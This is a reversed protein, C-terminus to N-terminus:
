RSCSIRSIPRPLHTLGGSPLSGQAVSVMSNATEWSSACCLATRSISTRARTTADPLVLKSTCKNDQWIRSTSRYQRARAIISTHRSIIETLRATGARQTTRRDSRVAAHHKYSHAGIRPLCARSAIPMIDSVQWLSLSPECHVPAILLSDSPLLPSLHSSACCVRLLVPTRALLVVQRWFQRVLQGM